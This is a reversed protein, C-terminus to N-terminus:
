DERTDGSTGLLSNVKAKLDTLTNSTQASNTNTALGYKKKMVALRSQFEQIRFNSEAEKDEQPKLIQLDENVKESLDDPLEQLYSGLNAEANRQQYDSLERIAESYNEPEALRQFISV